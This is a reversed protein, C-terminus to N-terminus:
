ANASWANNLAVTEAYIEGAVGVLENARALLAPTTVIRHVCSYYLAPAKIFRIERLIDFVNDDGVLKEILAECRFQLGELTYEQCAILVRLTLEPDSNLVEHTERDYGCYVYRLMVALMSASVNLKVTDKTDGNWQMRFVTNFYPSRASLLARHTRFVRRKGVPESWEEVWARCTPNDSETWEAGVDNTSVVLDGRRSTLATLVDSEFTCPPPPPLTTATVKEAKLKARRVADVLCKMEFGEALRELDDLADRSIHSRAKGTYIHEFLATWAVHHHPTTRLTELRALEEKSAVKGRALGFLKPCRTEVIFDHLTFSVVRDPHATASSSSAIPTEEIMPSIRGSADEEEDDEVHYRKRSNDGISVQADTEGEISSVGRVTVVFDFTTGSTEDVTELLTGYEKRRRHIEGHPWGYKVQLFPLRELSPQMVLTALARAAQARAQGSSNTFLCRVVLPIAGARVVSSRFPTSINALAGIANSTCESSVGAVRVLGEVGGKSVFLARAEETSVMAFTLRVVQGMTENYAVIIPNKAVDENSSDYRTPTFNAADVVDPITANLLKIVYDICGREIVVRKLAQDGIIFNTITGAADRKANPDNVTRLIDVLNHLTDHGVFLAKISPRSSLSYIVRVLQRCLSVNRSSLFPRLLVIVDPDQAAAETISINGLAGVANAKIEDNVDVRAFVSRFVQLVNASVFKPRNEVNAAISFICRLVQHIVTEPSNADSGLETLIPIVGADAVPIKNDPHIAINALAGAANVVVVDNEHHLARVLNPIARAVRLKYEHVTTVSFIGRAARALITVNTSDLFSVFPECDNHDVMLMRKVPEDFALNGLTALIMSDNVMLGNPSTDTRRLLKVLAGVVGRNALKERLGSNGTISFLIRLYLSRTFSYAAPRPDGERDACCEADWLIYEIVKDVARVLSERANIQELTDDDRTHSIEDQVVRFLRRPNERDASYRNFRNLRVEIAPGKRKDISVTNTPSM